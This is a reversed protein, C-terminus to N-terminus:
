AGPARGIHSSRGAAPRSPPTGGGNKRTQATLTRFRAGRVGPGGRSHFVSPDGLSRCHARGRRHTMQRVSQAPSWLRGFLQFFMFSFKLPSGPSQARTEHGHALDGSHQAEVLVQKEVGEASFGVVDIGSIWVTVILACCKDPMQHPGSSCNPLAGTKEDGGTSGKGNGRQHDSIKSNKIIISFSTADLPIIYSDSYLELELESSYSVSLSVFIDKLMKKPVTFSAKM